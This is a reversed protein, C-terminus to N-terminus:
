AAVNWNIDDFSTQLPTKRFVKSYTDLISIKRFSFNRTPPLVM